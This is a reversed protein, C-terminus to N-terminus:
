LDDDDDDDPLPMDAVRKLEEEQARIQDATMMSSPEPPLVAPAESFELHPDSYHKATVMLVWRGGLM